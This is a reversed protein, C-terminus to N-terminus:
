WSLRAGIQMRRMPYLISVIQGATSANVATNPNNLNTRNFANYAEGRLELNITETFQFQKFLSLDAAAFGPGELINRGSNGYTFAPPRAFAAADFWLNRDPDAIQGSGIRDPRLTCCDSNFSSTDSFTPTFPRGSQLTVIGNLIWGGIVHRAVGRLSGGIPKGPGFPLEWLFANTSIFARNLDSPGWNSEFDLINQYASGTLM